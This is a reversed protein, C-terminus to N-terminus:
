DAYAEDPIDANSFVDQTDDLDELMDLFRVVKQGSELDLEVETSARMTVETNEAELGAAEMAAVVAAFAEPSTHV